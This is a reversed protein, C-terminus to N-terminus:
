EIVHLTASDTNLFFRDSYQCSFIFEAEAYDGYIAYGIINESGYSAIQNNTDELSDSTINLLANVGMEALSASASFYGTSFVTTELPNKSYGTTADYYFNRGIVVENEDQIFYFKNFYTNLSVGALTNDGLFAATQPYEELTSYYPEYIIYSWLGNDLQPNAGLSLIFGYESSLLGSAYGEANIATRLYEMAYASKLIQLDVTINESPNTVKYEISNNEDDFILGQTPDATFANVETVINNLLTEYVPNIAPDTIASNTSVNDWFTLIEGGYVNYVGNTSVTYEYASKLSNYLLDDVVIATNPNQNIYALNHIVEDSENLFLNKSDFLIHVYNVDDQTKEVISNMESNTNFGGEAFYYTLTVEELPYVSEGESNNLFNYEIEQYGADASLYDIIGYSLFGIGILFLFVTIMLRITTKVSHRGKKTEIQPM